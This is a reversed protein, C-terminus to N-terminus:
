PQNAEVACAATSLAGLSACYGPAEGVVSPCAAITTAMMQPYHMGQFAGPAGAYGRPSQAAFHNMMVAYRAQMQMQMQMQLQYSNPMGCSMQQSLPMMSLANRYLMNQQVAVSPALLAAAGHEPAERTTSLTTSDTVRPVATPPMARLAVRLADSMLASSSPRRGTPATPAPALSSTTGAAASEVRQRKAGSEPGPADTKTEPSAIVSASACGSATAAHARKAPRAGSRSPAGSASGAAPRNLLMHSGAVAGVTALSAVSTMVIRFRTKETNVNRRRKEKVPVSLAHLAAMAEADSRPLVVASGTVPVFMTSAAANAARKAAGARGGFKVSGRAAFYTETAIGAGIVRALPAVATIVPASASAVSLLHAHFTWYGARNVRAQMRVQHHEKGAADTFVRFSLSGGQSVTAPKPGGKAVRKHRRSNTRHAASVCLLLTDSIGVVISSEDNLNCLGPTPTSRASRTWSKDIRPRSYHWDVKEAAAGAAAPAARPPLAFDINHLLLTEPHVLEAGSPGRPRASM